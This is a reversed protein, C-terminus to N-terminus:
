AGPCGTNDCSLKDETPDAGAVTPGPAPPPAGTSFLWTLIRMTDAVDLRGDDNADCADLCPPDYRTQGTQFLATIIAAGDALNAKSDGNCDGRRFVSAGTIEVCCNVTRAPFSQNEAAFINKVPVKGRGNIGNCFEV